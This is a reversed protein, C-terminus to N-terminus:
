RGMLLQLVTPLECVQHEAARSSTPQSPRRMLRAFVAWSACATGYQTETGRHGMVPRSRTRALRGERRLKTAHARATFGQPIGVTWLSPLSTM